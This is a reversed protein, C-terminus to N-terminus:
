LLVRALAETSTPKALHLDFGAQASLERDEPRAYGSIAVLTASKLSDDARMARAVEYGDMEPLAIDCFVVEPRFERAVALGTPGDYAVRVAHGDLALLDRLADVSDVNDDIILVRRSTARSMPSIPAPAHPGPAAVLPLRVTFESGRGLGDSAVDVTGAHLEVIGKVLALGLGLGGRARDLSSSVQVFPVFLCGREQPDIGIGTDRVSLVAQSGERRLGVDVRGGRPTFKWANVLLNGIMQVLRTVDADVWLPRHAVPGELAIGRAQFDAGHDDMTARVLDGLDVRARQLTVKGRAIRTVDLLDDVIRVLHGTQREIITVAKRAQEGGAEVRGLISLSSCIASLPNRLEHSLAALFEDKRASEERAVEARKSATIDHVAVLVDSESGAHRSVLLRVHLGEAEGRGLDVQLAMSARARDPIQEDLLAALAAHHRPDVHEAFSRGRLSAREAGVMRAFELNLERIVGRADLVVYGVPALDFLDTYAAAKKRLEADAGKDGRSM